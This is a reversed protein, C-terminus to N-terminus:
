TSGINESRVSFIDEETEYLSRSSGGEFVEAAGRDLGVSFSVPLVHEQASRFHPLTPTFSISGHAPITGSEVPVTEFFRVNPM